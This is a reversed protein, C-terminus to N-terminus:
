GSAVDWFSAVKCTINQRCPESRLPRCNGLKGCSFDGCGSLGGCTPAFGIVEDAQLRHMLTELASRAEPSLEVDEGVGIRVHMEGAAPPGLLWGSESAADPDEPM